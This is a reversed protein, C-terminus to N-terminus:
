PTAESAQTHASYMPILRGLRALEQTKRTYDARLLESKALREAMELLITEVAEEWDTSEPLSRLDRIRTPLDM